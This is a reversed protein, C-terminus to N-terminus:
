GAAIPLERGLFAGRQVYQLGEGHYGPMEMKDMRRLGDAQRLARSSARNKPQLTLPTVRQEFTM